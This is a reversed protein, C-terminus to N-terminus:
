HNFFFRYNNKNPFVIDLFLDAMASFNKTDPIKIQIRSALTLKSDAKSLNTSTSFNKLLLLFFDHQSM